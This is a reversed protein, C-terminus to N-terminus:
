IHVTGAMDAHGTHLTDHFYFFHVRSGIVVEKDRVTMLEDLEAEDMAMLRDHIADGTEAFLSMLESFDLVGPGDSTIPESENAYREMDPGIPESGILELVVNRHKVLHGVNWNVCNAGPVQSLSREHDVGDLQHALYRTNRQFGKAMEEAINM